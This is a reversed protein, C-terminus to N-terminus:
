TISKQGHTKRIAQAAALLHRDSKLITVLNSSSINLAAAAPALRAEAADLLDLLFAGVPWFRADKRGIALKRSAATDSRRGRPAFICEAVVPPVDPAVLNVPRRCRCALNMRLRRLAARRNDHQSRSESANATIGTPRHKLRVASSVKNRHQGGPGSSRHIHVDCQDLLAAADLALYDDPATM